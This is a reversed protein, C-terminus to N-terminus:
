ADTWQLMNCPFVVNEGCQVYNAHAPHHLRGGFAVIPNM